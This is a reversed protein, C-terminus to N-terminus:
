VNAKLPVDSVEERELETFMYVIISVLGYVYKKLDICVYNELKLSPIFM